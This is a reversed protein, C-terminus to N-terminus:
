GARRSLGTGESTEQGRESGATTGEPTRLFVEECTSSTLTALQHLPVYVPLSDSVKEVLAKVDHLTSWKCFSTKGYGAPATILTPVATYDLLTEPFYEYKIKTTKRFSSPNLQIVERVRFYNLFERSGIQIPKNAADRAFRNAEILRANFADLVSLMASVHSSKPIEKMQRLSSHITKDEEDGAPELSNERQLREREVQERRRQESGIPGTQREWKLREKALRDLDSQRRAQREIELRQKQAREREREERERRERETKLQASLQMLSSCLKEAENPDPIEWVQTHRVFNAVFDIQESLSAIENVTTAGDLLLFNPKEVLSEFEQLPIKFGQRVYVSGLTKDASSLIYHQSALFSLPDSQEFTQQLAAVYTGLLTSEFLVFEPWYRSFKELLRTGCLFEVKGFHTKLKGEISRVTTQPCDHPSIIFVKSVREEEGAGNLFLTDLAQEAQIFVTRAGENDDASGSIRTRKVVCANLQLNEFGDPAYFVIDKGYEQPGHTIQVGQTRPMKTLLTALHNRLDEESKFAEAFRDLEHPVDSM